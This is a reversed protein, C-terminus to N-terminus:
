LHMFRSLISFQLLVCYNFSVFKYVVLAKIIM